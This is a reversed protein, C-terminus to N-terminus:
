LIRKDLGTTVAVVDSVVSDPDLQLSRVLHVSSAYRDLLNIRWLPARYYTRLEGVTHQANSSRVKFLAVDARRIYIVNADDHKYTSYMEIPQEESITNTLLFKVRYLPNFRPLFVTVLYRIDKFCNFM